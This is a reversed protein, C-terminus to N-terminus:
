KLTGKINTALEVFCGEIFKQAEKANEASFSALRQELADLRNLTTTKLNSVEEAWSRTIADTDVDLVVQNCVGSKVESAASAAVSPPIRQYTTQVHTELQILRHKHHKLNEVIMNHSLRIQDLLDDRSQHRAESERLRKDIDGVNQQLAHMAQMLGGVEKEVERRMGELTSKVMLELKQVRALLLSQIDTM